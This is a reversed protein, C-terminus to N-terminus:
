APVGPMKPADVARFFLSRELLEGTLCAFLAVWVLAPHLGHTALILPLLVGGLLAAGIRLENM